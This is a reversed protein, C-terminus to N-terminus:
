SLFADSSKTTINEGLISITGTTANDVTGM